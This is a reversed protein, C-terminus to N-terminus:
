GNLEEWLNYVEEFKRLNEKILERGKQLGAELRSIFEEDRKVPCVWMPHEEFDPNYLVYDCWKRGTVLLQFQMQAYHKPDIWRNAVAFFHHAQTKCKIEILGDEGVLGDPSCGTFDDLVVFGVEKVEQGTSECYCARALPELEKGRLMAPSATIIEPKGSKIEAAKECSLTELGKGATKVESADTATFKGCRALLWEFSGQECNIIQM